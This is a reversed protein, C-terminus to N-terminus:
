MFSPHKCLKWYDIITKLTSKIAAMSNEKQFYGQVMMEYAQEVEQMNSSTTFFVFPISKKKLLENKNIQKKLETGSIGPMNIDSLILFPKETTQLLFPIVAECTDFFVISNRVDLELLIDSIIQQDDRDDEIIILPGALSMASFKKQNQLLPPSCKKGDPVSMLKCNIERAVKGPVKCEM